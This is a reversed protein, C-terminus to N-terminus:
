EKPTTRFILYTAVGVLAFLCVGIAAALGVENRQFASIYIELAPVTTAKGPGGKTLVYVLDFTRLAALITLTLAVAIEARIGPISVHVFRQVANAGDLQAAEFLAPDVRQIGALFLVMCLGTMLWTGIIGVAPLAWTPDGLWARTEVGVIELAKNLLGNKSFIWQWGVAVVVLTIAQPLFLVVRYFTMGRIRRQSLLGTLLLGLVIPLVSYFFVLILAHVFSRQLAPDTFIEVYNAGGSWEARTLGNWDFFSLQTTQLIPVLIFVGVLLMGPLLYLYPVLSRRM